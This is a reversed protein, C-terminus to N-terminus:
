SPQEDDHHLPKRMDIWDVEEGTELVVTGFADHRSQRAILDRIQRATHLNSAYVAFAGLIWPRGSNAIRLTNHDCLCPM